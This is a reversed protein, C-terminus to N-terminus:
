KKKGKTKNSAELIPNPNDCKGLSNTYIFYAKQIHGSWHSWRTTMIHFSVTIEETQTM